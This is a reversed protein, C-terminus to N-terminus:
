VPCNNIQEYFGPKKISNKFEIIFKLIRRTGNNTPSVGHVVTQPKVICLTNPNPKVEKLENNEFWQFKSDSNNSITLVLELCDPSFMSLDQHFQMGSSKKPYIRYEVPFSPNNIYKKNYIKEIIQKLKKNNYILDYLKTNNKKFLCITKRSTVRFDNKFKKEKCINKIQKFDNKSFFDNIILLENKYNYDIKDNNYYNVNVLYFIIFLLLIILLEFM